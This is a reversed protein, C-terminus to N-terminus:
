KAAKAREREQHECYFEAAKRLWPSRKRTVHRLSEDAAMNLQMRESLQADVEFSSIIIRGAAKTVM